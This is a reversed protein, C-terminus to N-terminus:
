RTERDVTLEDATYGRPQPFGNAGFRRWGVEDRNGGHRPECLFGEWAWARVRRFVQFDFADPDAALAAVVVDPDTDGRLHPRLAALLVPDERDLRGVVYDISGATRAGAGSTSPLMVDLLRELADIEDATLM